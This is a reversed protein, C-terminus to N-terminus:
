SRLGFSLLLAFLGTVIETDSSFMTYAELAAQPKPNEGAGYVSHPRTQFAAAQKAVTHSIGATLAKGPCDVAPSM